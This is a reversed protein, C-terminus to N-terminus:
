RLFDHKHAEAAPTDSSCEPWIWVCESYFAGPIVDGDLWMVHTPTKLKAGPTRGAFPSEGSFLKDPKVDTVIFKDTKMKVMTKRGTNIWRIEM